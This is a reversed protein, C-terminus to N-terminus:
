ILGYNVLHVNHQTSCAVSVMFGDSFQKSPYYILPSTPDNEWLSVYFQVQLQGGQQGISLICTLPKVEWVRSARDMNWVTWM